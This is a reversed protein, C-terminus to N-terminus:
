SAFTPLPRCSGTSTTRPATSTPSCSRGSMTTVQTRLREYIRLTADVFESQEMDIRVFLDRSAAHAVLGDVNAYAAEEDFSLGLHTLKVALNARLRESALRDLLETYERM